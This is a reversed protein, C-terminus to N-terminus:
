TEKPKVGQDRVYKAIDEPRYRVSRGVKVYRPGRGEYRWTALTRLAVQLMEAAQKPTLLNKM